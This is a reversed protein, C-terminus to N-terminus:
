ISWKKAAIEGRSPGNTLRIGEPLDEIKGGGARYVRSPSDSCQFYVSCVKGTFRNTKDRAYAFSPHNVLEQLTRKKSKKFRLIETLTM